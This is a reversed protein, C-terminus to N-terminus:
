KGKGQAARAEEAALSAIEADLEDDTLESVDRFNIPGGDKGTIERGERYREPRNGKLLIAMLSDSYEKVTVVVGDLDKDIRGILPKDIGEVARRIAEDELLDAVRERMAAFAKDYEPDTKRWEYHTDPNIGVTESAKTIRGCRAFAALFAVKKLETQQAAEDRASARSDRIAAPPKSKRTAM